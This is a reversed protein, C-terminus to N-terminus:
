VIGSPSRVPSAADIIAPSALWATAGAARARGALTAHRDEAVVLLMPLGAVLAASVLHEGDLVVARDGATTGARAAARRIRQVAPHQRSSIRVDSPM